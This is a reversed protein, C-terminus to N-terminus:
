QISPGQRLHDEVRAPWLDQGCGNRGGCREAGVFLM